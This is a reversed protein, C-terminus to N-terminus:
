NTNRRRRKCLYLDIIIYIKIFDNIIRCIVSHLSSIIRRIRSISGGQSSIVVVVGEIIVKNGIIDTRVGVGQTSGGVKRMLIGGGVMVVRIGGKRM